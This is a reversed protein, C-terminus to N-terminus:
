PTGGQLLIQQDVNLRHLTDKLKLAHDLIPRGDGLYALISEVTTQMNTISTHYAPRKAVVADASVSSLNAAQLATLETALTSNLTALASLDAELAATQTAAQAIDASLTM